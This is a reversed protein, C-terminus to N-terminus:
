HRGASGLDLWDGWERETEPPDLRLFGGAPTFTLESFYVKELDYLDVRVLPFPKSLAAAIDLMENLHPPREIMAPDPVGPRDVRYVDLHKWDPDFYDIYHKEGETTMVYVLRPVGNFCYFKYTEIDDGLYEEGIIRKKITRYHLECFEKWYDEKMWRKLKKEAEKIDLSSKDRCIINYGCGHNCKLVFREPLADWPVDGARECSFLLGPLIDEMGRKKLYERVAYKDACEAVVPDSAYAKLKLYHIKENITKPDTFDPDCGFVARYYKITEEEPRHECMWDHRLRRLKMRLEGM